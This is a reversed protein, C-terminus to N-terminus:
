QCFCDVVKEAAIISRLITVAAALGDDIVLMAVRAKLPAGSQCPVVIRQTRM